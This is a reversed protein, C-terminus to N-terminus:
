AGCIGWRAAAAAGSVSADSADREFRTSSRQQVAQRSHQWFRQSQLVEGHFDRPVADALAPSPPRALDVLQWGM